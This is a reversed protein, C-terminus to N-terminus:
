FDGVQLDPDIIFPDADALNSSWYLRIRIFGKGTSLVDADVDVNSCQLYDWDDGSEGPDQDAIDIETSFVSNIVYESDDDYNAVVDCQLWVDDFATTDNITNGTDNFVWVRYDKGSATPVIRAEYLKFGRGYGIYSPDAYVGTTNIEIVDDSIKTNCTLGSTPSKDAIINPLFTRWAGLTKGWNEFTAFSGFTSGAYMIYGNTGGMDVDSGQILICNEYIEIEDDGNAEEIGLNVNKLHLGGTTKIASDDMNYIAVYELFAEEGTGYYGMQNAGPNNANDGEFVCQRIIASQNSIYVSQNSHTSKFLCGVIASQMSGSFVIMYDNGGSIFNLNKFVFYDDSSFSIEFAGNQTITPLDAADDDWDAEDDVGEGAGLSQAFTYDEDAQITCSDTADAGAYPRDIIFCLSANGNAVAVKGVADHIEEDDSLTGSYYPGIVIHGTTGDDVFGILRGSFDAANDDLTEYLDFAKAEGDYACYLGIGTIFYDFGDPLTIMRGVHKERDPTSAAPSFVANLGNEVSMNETISPRPWGQIINPTNVQADGTVGIAAAALTEDHTRKVWVYDNGNLGATLADSLNDWAANMSSGDGGGIEDSVWYHTAFCPSAVFICALFVLLRAM